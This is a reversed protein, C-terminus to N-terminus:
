KGREWGENHFKDTDVFMLRYCMVCLLIQKSNSTGVVGAETLTGCRSCNGPPGLQGPLLPIGEDSVEVGSARFYEQLVEPTVSEKHISHERLWAYFDMM